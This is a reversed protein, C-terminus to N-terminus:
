KWVGIHTLAAVAAARVEGDPDALLHEVAAAHRGAITPRATALATLARARVRPSPHHFLLPTVLNRKELSELLDIANLVRRDDPEALEEVLMEMGALDAVPLRVDAAHVEHRALTARFANV